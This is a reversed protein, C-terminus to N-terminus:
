GDTLGGFYSASWGSMSRIKAKFDPLRRFEREMVERVNRDSPTDGAGYKFNDNGDAEHCKTEFFRPTEDMPCGCLIIREAGMLFAIQMAFQGSLSFTTPETGTWDYDIGAALPGSSHLKWRKDMEVAERRKSWEMLKDGHYSFWHDVRLLRVGVDNVAFVVPREFERMARAYEDFVGDAGGCVIVVRGSLSDILGGVSDRGTYGNFSWM